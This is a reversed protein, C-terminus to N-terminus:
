PSFTASAVGSAISEDSSRPKVLRVNRMTLAMWAYLVMAILWGSRGLPKPGGAGNTVVRRPMARNHGFGDLMLGGAREM